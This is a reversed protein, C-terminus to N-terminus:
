SEIVTTQFSEQQMLQSKSMGFLPVEFNSSKKHHGMEM